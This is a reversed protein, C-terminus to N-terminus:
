TAIDNKENNFFNLTYFNEIKSLSSESSLASPLSSWWQISDWNILEGEKAEIRGDHTRINFEEVGIIPFHYQPHLYSQSRGPSEWSHNVDVLMPLPSNPCLDQLHPAKLVINRQKRNHLTIIMRPSTVKLLFYLINTKYEIYPNAILLFQQTNHPQQM